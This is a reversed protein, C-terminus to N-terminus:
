WALWILIGCSPCVCVSEWVQSGMHVHLSVETGPCANEWSECGIITFCPSISHALIFRSLNDHCGPTLLDGADDPPTNGYLQPLCLFHGHITEGKNIVTRSKKKKCSTSESLGTLAASSEKDWWHIVEDHKLFSPCLDLALQSFSCLTWKLADYDLLCQFTYCEGDFVLM